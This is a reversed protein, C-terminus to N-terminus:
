LGSDEYKSQIKKKWYLPKEIWQQCIEIDLTLPPFYLHIENGDANAYDSPWKAAKLSAFLRDVIVYLPVVSSLAFHSYYNILVIM